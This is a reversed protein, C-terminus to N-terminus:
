NSGAAVQEIKYGKDQLLRVMGKEGIIHAAGVVVFCTETGKLYREVRETMTVNRDDILKKVMWKPGTANEEELLKQISTSDGSIYANQIKKMMDKTKDSNKLADALMEQQEDDSASSFLSFQFDATELEDIRQAKAEDLFHMDIGLKADEGAQQYATAIVVTAVVWPRLEELAARPLGHAQCFQDLAELTQKSLHRSIGDKEDYTGHAQVMQMTKLPDLNKANIEVALAKSSAFADEIAKPLPYM